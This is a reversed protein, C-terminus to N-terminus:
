RSVVATGAVVYQYQTFATFELFVLSNLADALPLRLFIAVDTSILPGADTVAPSVAVYVQVAVYLSLVVAVTVGDHLMVLPDDYAEM